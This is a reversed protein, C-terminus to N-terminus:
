VLGYPNRETTWSGQITVRAGAERLLREGEPTVRNHDLDLQELKRIAPSRALLSAGEDTVIGNRLVLSDLRDILGSAVIERVGEDGLLTRRLRLSRLGRFHPSRAVARLDELSPGEEEYEAFRGDLTLEELNGLSANEALVTLPWPFGLGLQLIRLHPMALRFLRDGDHELLQLRLRELRPCSRVLETTSPGEPWLYVASWREVEGLALSCVNKLCDAGVLHDPAPTESSAPPSGPGPNPSPDQEAFTGPHLDRLLRAAPAHALTRALPCTLIPIHLRSLWGNTFSFDIPDNRDPFSSGPLNWPHREDPQDLLFPALEGLWIRLFPESPQHDQRQPKQREEFPLAPDDMQLQVRIFEGRAVSAADTQELLFDAYAMHAVRDDPNAALAEELAQQLASPSAAGTLVERYGQALREQVLRQQEQEARLQNTFPRARRLGETGVEGEIVILFGDTLDISWFLHQGGTHRTFIRM